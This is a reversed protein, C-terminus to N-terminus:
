VIEWKGGRKDNNSEDIVFIIKDKSEKKKKQIELLSKNWLPTILVGRLGISVSESSGRLASRATLNM